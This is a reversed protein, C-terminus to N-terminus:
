GEDLQRIERAVLNNIHTELLEYAKQFAQMKEDETGEAVAPDPISWHYKGSNGPWVPCVENAANDCVTVVINMEPADPLAFKDWSKSRFNKIEYGKNKLLALALPHVAGKPQSGASFAYFRNVSHNQLLAEALISRASNGTCLFLVNLHSPNQSASVKSEEM